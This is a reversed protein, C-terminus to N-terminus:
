PLQIWHTGEFAKGKLDMKINDQGMNLNRSRPEKM